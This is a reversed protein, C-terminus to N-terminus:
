VHLDTTIVAWAYSWEIREQELRIKYGIMNDRLNRYTEQEETNLYQLVETHCVDAEQTWLNKEKLLTKKDMLLSKLQPLYSRARNLIAFGHTDLDGWYYCYPATTIWAYSQQTETFVWDLKKCAAAVLSRKESRQKKNEEGRM